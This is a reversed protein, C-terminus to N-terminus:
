EIETEDQTPIEVEVWVEDSLCSNELENIKDRIEQRQAKIPAYEAESIWGEAYKIAKYDTDFLRQKLESIQQSIPVQNVKELEAEEEPTIDREQWNDASDFKSLYVQKSKNDGCVLIKGEEATIINGKVIM